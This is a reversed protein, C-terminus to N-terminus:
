EQSFTVLSYIRRSFNRLKDRGDLYSLEVVFSFGEVGGGLGQVLAAAAAATGGTALLDDHILVKDGSIVGEKQVEIVAEGYELGYGIEAVAGPLKGGKRIMVFGCGLSQALMAGFLFGRSEIGMVKTIGCGFFPEALGAVVDKVLVSDLMVPALDRFLIGKRPFDPITKITNNLRESIDM